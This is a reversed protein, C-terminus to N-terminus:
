QVTSNQTQPPKSQRIRERHWLYLLALSEDHSRDSFGQSSEYQEKNGQHFRLSKEGRSLSVHRVHLFKLFSSIIRLM